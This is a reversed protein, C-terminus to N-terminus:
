DHGSFRASLARLRARSLGVRRANAYLHTRLSLMADGRIDELVFGIAAAQCRASQSRSLPARRVARLLEKVRTFPTADLEIEGPTRCRAATMEESEYRFRRNSLCRPVHCYPGALALEASLIRDARAMTLFLRTNALASRRYMCFVPDMLWHERHLFWLMRLFREDPRDSDVRPGEHERYFRKGQDDVHMQYTTAGTCRPDAEFAEYCAKAYDPEVWDDSGLWRFYTGRSMGVLRNFNEYVGLDRENRSYRIRRDRSAYEQCIQSTRDTSANDSIVIEIDELSQCLLSEIARGVFQDRNRVPLGFSVKPPASDM